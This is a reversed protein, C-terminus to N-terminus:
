KSSFLKFRLICLKAILKISNMKNLLYIKRCYTKLDTNIQNMTEQTPNPILMYTYASHIITFPILYTDLIRNLQNPNSTILHSTNEQIWIKIRQYVELEITTKLKYDSYKSSLNGENLIRYDTM